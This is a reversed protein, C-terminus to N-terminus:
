SSKGSVEKKIYLFQRAFAARTVRKTKICEPDPAFEIHAEDCAILGPTAGIPILSVIHNWAERPKAEPQNRLYAELLGYLANRGYPKKSM